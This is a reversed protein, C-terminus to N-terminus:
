FFSDHPKASNNMDRSFKETPDNNTAWSFKKQETMGAEGMFIGNPFFDAHLTTLHIGPMTTQTAFTVGAIICKKAVHM